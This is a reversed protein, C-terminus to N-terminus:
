ELVEGARGRRRRLVAGCLVRDVLWRLRPWPSAKEDLGAVASRVYRRAVHRHFAAYPQRDRVEGNCENFMKFDRPSLDAKVRSMLESPGAIM